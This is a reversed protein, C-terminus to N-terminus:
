VRHVVIRQTDVLLRPQVSPPVASVRQNCPQVDHLTSRTIRWDHHNSWIDSVFRMRRRSLEVPEHVWERVRRMDPRNNTRPVRVRGHQRQLQQQSIRERRVRVVHLWRREVGVTRVDAARVRLVCTWSHEVQVRMSWSWTRWVGNAPVSRLEHPNWQRRRSRRVRVCSV